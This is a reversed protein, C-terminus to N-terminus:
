GPLADKAHAQRNEIAEMSDDDWRDNWRRDGLASARTPNQEMEYDWEADLFAQLASTSPYPRAAPKEAACALSAAILFASSALFPVFSKMFKFLSYRIASVHQRFDPAVM